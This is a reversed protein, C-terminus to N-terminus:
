FSVKIKKYLEGNAATCFHIGSSAMNTKQSMRTEKAATTIKM